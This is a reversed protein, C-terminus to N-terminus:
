LLITPCEYSAKPSEFRKVVSFFFMCRAFVWLCAWPVILFSGIVLGQVNCGRIVQGALPRGQQIFQKWATVKSLTPPSLLPFFALTGLPAPPQMDQNFRAASDHLCQTGPILRFTFFVHDEEEVCALFLGRAM